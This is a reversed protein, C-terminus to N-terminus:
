EPAAGFLAKVRGWTAPEAGVSLEAQVNDVVM